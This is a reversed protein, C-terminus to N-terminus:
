TCQLLLATLALAAYIPSGIAARSPHRSRMGPFEQRVVVKHLCRWMVHAYRDPPQVHTTLDDDFGSMAKSAGEYTASCSM